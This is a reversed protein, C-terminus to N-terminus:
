YAYGCNEPLYSQRFISAASIGGVIYCLIIWVMGKGGDQMPDPFFFFVTPFISLIAILILTFIKISFDAMNEMMENLFPALFLLFFYCTAYWYTRGAVPFVAKIGNPVTIYEPNVISM